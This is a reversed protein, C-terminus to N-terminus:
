VRRKIFFTKVKQEIDAEGKKSINVFNKLENIIEKDSNLLLKKNRIQSKLEEICEYCIYGIEEVYTECMITECDRRACQLVGM